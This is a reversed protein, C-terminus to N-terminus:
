LSKTLNETTDFTSLLGEDPSSKVGCIGNSHPFAPSQPCLLVFVGGFDPLNSLMPLDSVM